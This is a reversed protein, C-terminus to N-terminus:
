SGAGGMGSAEGPGPADYPGPAECLADLLACFRRRDMEVAGLRALHPNPLQCDILDFGLACLRALAAKSADSTRSFM